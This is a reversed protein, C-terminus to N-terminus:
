VELKGRESWDEPSNLDYDNRNLHDIIDQRFAAFALGSWNIGSANVMGEVGFDDQYSDENDTYVMCMKAQHTYIVRQSGDVSEHLRDIVSDYDLGEEIVEDVLNSAYFFVDQWYKQYETKEVKELTKM